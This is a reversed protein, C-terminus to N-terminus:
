LNYKNASLDLLINPFTEDFWKKLKPDKILDYFNKGKENKYHYNVNQDNLTIKLMKKKEWLDGNGLVIHMLLTSSSSIKSNHYHYSIDNIYKKYKPFLNKFRNWNGEDAAGMLANYGKSMIKGLTDDMYDQWMDDGSKFINTFWNEYHKLHKM